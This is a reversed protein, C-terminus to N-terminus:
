VKLNKSVSQQCLVKEIRTLANLMVQIQRLEIKEYYCRLSLGLYYVRLVRLLYGAVGGAITTSLAVLIGGDVLRELILAANGSAQGLSDSDGLANLLAARMGIATWLVGIGFALSELVELWHEAQSVKQIPVKKRRLLKDLQFMGRIHFVIVIAFPILASGMNSGLWDLALDISQWIGLEMDTLQSSALFYLGTVGLIIGLGSGWMLSKFFGRDHLRSLM